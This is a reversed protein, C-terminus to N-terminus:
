LLILLLLFLAISGQHYKQWLPSLLLADEFVERDDSWVANLIIWTCFPVMSLGALNRNLFIFFLYFFYKFFFLAAMKHPLTHTHPPPPPTHPHTHKHPHPFNPTPPPPDTCPDDTPTNILHTHLDSPTHILILKPHYHSLPHPPTVTNQVFQIRRCTYHARM